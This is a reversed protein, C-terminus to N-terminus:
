VNVNIEQRKRLNFKDLRYQLTRYTVGLKRAARAIVWGNAEMARILAAKEMDKLSLDDESTQVRAIRDGLRVEVPLDSEKIMEGECLVVAREIVSELQRVNGPWSYDMLRKLVEPSMKKINQSVLSAHKALFHEILLPIDTKRDRLSPVIFSVINLRYYLDDRFRGERMAKELDKNTAAIIRVDVKIMENGGLHRVERDQLVRLIKAQLTLSLDGIEDLFITGGNANEFLGEKRSDAGTFAGKEYGFLESELLTDPIAACNISCMQGGGRPSSLHIAKAILEKGTGSEGRILVTANSAAVKKVMSFIQQMAGSSGIINELRFKGSLEEKLQVNQKKLDINEFAQRVTIVLEEKNIPKTLYDFAGLKIADVASDITGYATILIVSPPNKLAQISRLLAIGDMGSMRQDTLVLDISERHLLSLAEHGDRATRTCFGEGTLIEALIERQYREDDVILINHTYTM